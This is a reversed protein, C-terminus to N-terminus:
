SGDGTIQGTLEIAVEEVSEWGVERWQTDIQEYEIRRYGTRTPEFRYKRLIGDAGRWRVVFRHDEM